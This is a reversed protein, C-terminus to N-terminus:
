ATQRSAKRFLAASVLWPSALAASLLAGRPDTAAGGAAVAIQAIGAGAAALAMGSARFRAAAARALALGIVGLFLLNYPNGEEGIMGVAANAWVIVFAAALAFAAGSRYAANRSMRVALEFGLGVGGIMVSAFVFDLMTWNVESTFRMAVAPLLLLVAAFSWGAIRWPSASREARKEGANAM